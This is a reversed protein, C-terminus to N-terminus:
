NKHPIYFFYSSAYCCIINKYFLLQCTEHVMQDFAEAKFFGRDVMKGVGKEGSAVLGYNYLWYIVLGQWLQRLHIKM